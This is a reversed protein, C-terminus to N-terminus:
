IQGEKRWTKKLWGLMLILVILWTCSRSTNGCGCGKADPEPDPDPDPETCEEDDGDCDQDIYDGCIEEAGPHITEDEDDCDPEDGCIKYGDSDADLGEDTEGDCDDDRDNCLELARPHVDPNDDDCDDGGCSPAAHGDRDVDCACSMDEGDCDQDIGDECIEPQEPNMIPAAYKSCGLAAEDGTDCCDMGSPCDGDKEGAYTDGDQDACGACTVELDYSTYRNEFADVVIYYSGEPLSATAVEPIGGTVEDAGVLCAEPDCDNEKDPLISVALDRTEPSSSEKTFLTATVEVPQHLTLLFTQERGEMNRDFCGYTLIANEGHGNSGHLTQGCHIPVVDVCRAGCPPDRGNCDEDVGDGCSDSSGPRIGWAEDPTCGLSDEFGTDCCDTGATFCQLPEYAHHGDEDEDTCDECALELDYPGEMWGLLSDVVIYYTGERLTKSATSPRSGVDISWVPCEETTCDNGSQGLVILKLSSMLVGATITVSITKEETLVLRYAVESGSYIAYPAMCIYETIINNGNATDGSVADGCQIDIPDPCLTQAQVVQALLEVLLFLATSSTKYKM